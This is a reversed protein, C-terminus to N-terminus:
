MGDSLLSFSDIFFLLSDILGLSSFLEEMLFVLPFAKTLLEDLYIKTWEGLDLIEWELLM